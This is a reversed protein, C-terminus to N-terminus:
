PSWPFLPMVGGAATHVFPLCNTIRDARSVQVDAALAMYHGNGVLTLPKYSIFQITEQSSRKVAQANEQVAGLEVGGLLM